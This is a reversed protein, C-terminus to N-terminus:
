MTYLYQTICNNINWISTVDPFLPTFCLLNNKIPCPFCSSLPVHWNKGSMCITYGSSGLFDLLFKLHLFCGIVFHFAVKQVKSFLIPREDAPPLEFFFSHGTGNTEVSVFPIIILWMQVLQRSKQQLIPIEKVYGQIWITRRYLVFMSREPYM